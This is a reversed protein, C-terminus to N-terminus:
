SPRHAAAAVLAPRSDLGLKQYVHVLHTKVTSVSVTLADAIERNSKGTAALEVVREEAPTLSDWGVAPRDGVKWAALVQDAADLVRTGRGEEYGAEEVRDRLEATATEFVPGLWTLGTREAHADAAGLRRSAEHLQEDDAGLAVALLGLGRHALLPNDAERAIRLVELAAARAAGHDARALGVLGGAVLHLAENWPTHRSEFFDAAITGLRAEAADPGDLLLDLEVATALPAIRWSPVVSGEIAEVMSARSSSWEEDLLEALGRAWALVPGLLGDASEPSVAELAREVLDRDGFFWGITAGQIVAVPAGLEFAPAVLAAAVAHRGEAAAVTAATLQITWWSDQGIGIHREVWALMPRAASLDGAIALLSLENMMALFSGFEDGVSRCLESGARLEDRGDRRGDLASPMGIGSRVRGVVAPDLDPHEALVAQAPEIWDFDGAIILPMILPAIASLWEVSGPGLREGLRHALHVAEAGGRASTVLSAALPQTLHWLVGPRRAMAWDIARRLDPAEEVSARALDGGAFVGLGDPYGLETARKLCWDLHRDRLTALEGADDARDAAFARITELLSYRGDHHQVLSRDVLRGLAEFVALRDVSADAAVAEAAALSFPAAFVSLRRLVVQEEDDCLDYSWGVSALLTRQREIGGRAGSTLVEFRDDLRDALDAVSMMRLRAAALELALPIGDLRRCVRAVSACTAETMAFTPDASRARELLLQVADHGSVTELDLQGTEPVSLSPIRWTTEGPVGLPERSTTLVRGACDRGVLEGTLEAAAALVHECNDLVVLLERRELVRALRSSASTGASGSLGCAQLTKPAVLEDDSVQGLDVWVVGGAFRDRVEMAVAHALRTKGSGGSGTITVLPADDLLAAVEAIERRRGVLSTPFSPLDRGPPRHADTAALDPHVLRHVVDPESGALYLPGLEHLAAGDPLHSTTLAATANSVLVEGGHAADCLRTALDVSTGRYTRDHVPEAIGTHAGIRVLPGNGPQLRRQIELASRVAGSPDVFASVTSDEDDQDPPQVGGHSAVVEAIVATAHDDQQLALTDVVETVLFTVLGTPLEM